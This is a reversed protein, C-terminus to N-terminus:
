TLLEIFNTLVRPCASETEKESATEWPSAGSPPKYRGLRIERINDLKEELM